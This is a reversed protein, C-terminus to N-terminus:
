ISVNYIHVYIFIDIFLTKLQVEPFLATKLKSTKRRREEDIEM